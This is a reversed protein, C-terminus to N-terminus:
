GVGGPKTREGRLYDATTVPPILLGGDVFLTQGTIYAADDSVLFAVATAIENPVGNRQLPIAPFSLGDRAEYNAQEEPTEAINIYGPAVCNVRIRHRALEVGMSQTLRNLGAKAVGYATDHPWAGASHVSSINVMAGGNGQAIMRRAAAQGLVFPATVCLDVTYRWDALSLETMDGGGTNRGGGANNVLIDLRGLAQTAEDVVAPLRDLDTMEAQMIHCRQGMAVIQAQVAAAGEAGKRYTIAVGAGEHALLLATAKGIGHNAGTILAAKGELRM